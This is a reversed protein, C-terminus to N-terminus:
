RRRRKRRRGTGRSLAAPPMGLAGSDGYRAALTAAVSSSSSSARSSASGGKQKTRGRQEFMADLENLHASMHYYHPAIESLWRPDIATVDRLLSWANTSVVSTGFVVWPASTGIRALTSSPHLEAEQGVNTTVYRGSGNVSARNTLQAANMFFGAVVCRRLTEDDECCSTIAATVSEGLASNMRRAVRGLARALQARIAAARRLLRHHLAHSSCWSSSRGAEDWASYANVLTLHDGERAAFELVAADAAVRRAHRSTSEAGDMQRQSLSTAFPDRISTMAAVTLAEEACGFALGALLMKAACADLPLESIMRGWCQARVLAVSPDGGAADCEARRAAVDASGGEALSTLKADDDLAGLTHLLELARALAAAPPPDLFNFHLVDDIGLAKLQLVATSLDTRQLEPTTARQLARFAQETCLRLCVGPRMRGARGRRQNASAKSVPQVVLTDHGTRPSTHPLRVFMADIVYVIGPLTISTEAINTAVVVKRMGRPPPAFALAQRRHALGGYLVVVHLGMPKSTGSRGARDTLLLRQQDVGGRGGRGGDRQQWLGSREGLERAVSEVEEEGPLFLLIDGAAQSRHISLVSAVACTLYNSCAARLYQTRVPFCRGQVEFVLATDSRTDASRNTEFFRKFKNADLTASSVIVRLEPRKRLIKKLLGLLIDTTANREHAEDIMVVSYKSLLPDSMTERLLSGDTLYLIRTREADCQRDFRVSYGVTGGVTCGVEDAVREALAIAAVRRPQTCAIVRRGASWGADHVFQPLQTSKGCGTEGVVVVVRYRELAHLFHLRMAAIPLAPRSAAAGRRRGGGGGGRAVVHAPVYTGCGSGLQESDRDLEGPAATGPKWM